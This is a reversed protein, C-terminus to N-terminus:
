SQNPKALTVIDMKFSLTEPEATLSPANADLTLNLLRVHPFQNELDALFHGLDHFHATGAVTLTTQKYPFNPLLNVDVLPGLQNFSPIEVKYRSKFQRFSNVVWSYLDGSAIDAEAAELQKRASALNTETESARRIADLVRRHNTQLNARKQALRVLNENQSRILLFYLATVLIITGAAVLLLKNRKDRPLRKLNM